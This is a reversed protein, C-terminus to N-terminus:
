SGEWEGEPSLVQWLPQLYERSLGEFGKPTTEQKIGSWNLAPAKCTENQWLHRNALIIVRKSHIQLKRM